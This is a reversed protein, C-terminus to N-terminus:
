QSCNCEDILEYVDSVSLLVTEKKNQKENDKSYHHVELLYNNNYGIFNQDKLDFSFSQFKKGDKYCTISYADDIVSYKNPYSQYVDIKRLHIRAKKRGLNDYFIWKYDYSWNHRYGNYTKLKFISRRCRIKEILMEEKTFVLRRRQNENVRLTGNEFYEKRKYFQSKRKWTHMESLRGTAYYTKDYRKSTNYDSALIVNPYYKMWRKEQPIEMERLVGSPYYVKVTDVADGDKFTGIKRINGNYFYDIVLGNAQSDCDHYKAYPGVVRVFVLRELLITDYYIGYNFFKKQPKNESYDLDYEHYLKYSGLIPLLLSDQYEGMNLLYFSDISSHSLWWDISVKEGTCQSIFVPKYIIEQSQSKTFPLFLFSYFLLLIQKKQTM